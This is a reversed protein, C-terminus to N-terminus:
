GKSGWASLTHFHKCTCMQMPHPYPVLRVILPGEAWCQEMPLTSCHMRPEPRYCPHGSKSSHM